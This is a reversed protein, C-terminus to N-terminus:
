LAKELSATDPAYREAKALMNLSNDAFNALLPTVQTVIDKKSAMYTVDQKTSVTCKAIAHGIGRAELFLQLKCYQLINPMLDRIETVNGLVSIWRYFLQKKGLWTAFGTEQTQM